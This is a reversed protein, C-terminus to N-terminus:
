NHKAVSDWSSQIVTQLRDKTMILEGSLTLQVATVVNGYILNSMLKLDMERLQNQAIGNAFFEIVPLYYLEGKQKTEPTIMTCHGIQEAFHFATENECFYDYLNTWIQFFQTKYSTNLDVQNSLTSGFEKKLNLYLENIIEEKSAFHHYITGAAVGSQKVVQSMPTAQIGQKVVLDLMTNLIKTRKNLEKKTM